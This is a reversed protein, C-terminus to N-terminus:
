RSETKAKAAMREWGDRCDVGPCWRRGEEVPEECHLCYGTPKPGEPKRVRLAIDRDMEERETALDFLDPM